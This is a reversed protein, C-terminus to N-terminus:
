QAVPRVFLPDLRDHRQCVCWLRRVWRWDCLRYARWGRLGRGLFATPGFEGVALFDVASAPALVLHARVDCSEAIDETIL